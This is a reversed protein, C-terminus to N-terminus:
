KETQRLPYLVLWPVAIFGFLVPVEADSATRFIVALHRGRFFDILGHDRGVMVMVMARGFGNSEKSSELPFAHIEIINRFDIKLLRKLVVLGLQLM